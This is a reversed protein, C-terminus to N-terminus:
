RSRTMTTSDADDLLGHMVNPIVTRPKALIGDTRFHIQREESEAGQAYRRSTEGEIGVMRLSGM